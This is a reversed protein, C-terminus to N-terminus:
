GVPLGGLAGERSRRHLVNRMWYIPIFAALAVLGALLYFKFYGFNTRYVYLFYSFGQAWYFLVMAGVGGLLIFLGMNVMERHNRYFQRITKEERFLFELCLHLIRYM